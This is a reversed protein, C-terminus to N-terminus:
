NIRQARVSRQNGVKLFFSGMAARRIHVKDGVKPEYVTLADTQRWRAGDALIFTWARGSYSSGSLTTDIETIEPEEPTDERKRFLSFDPLNLGFLTRKTKRVEARDAVLVDGRKEADEFAATQM